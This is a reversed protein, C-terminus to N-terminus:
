SESFIRVSVIATQHVGALLRVVTQTKLDWLAIQGSVFGAALHIGTADLCTVQLNIRSDM